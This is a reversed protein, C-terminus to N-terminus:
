LILSNTQQPYSLLFQLSNSIIRLNEFEQCLFVHSAGSLLHSKLPTIM